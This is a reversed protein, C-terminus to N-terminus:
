NELFFHRRLIELVREQNTQYNFYGQPLPQMVTPSLRFNRGFVTLRKVEMEFHTKFDFSQEAMIALDPEYAEELLDKRGKELASLAREPGTDPRRYTDWIKPDIFEYAAGYGAAAFRDAIEDLIEQPPLPKLAGDADYDDASENPREHRLKYLPPIVPKIHLQAPPDIKEVPVSKKREITIREDLKRSIKIEEKVSRYSLVPRVYRLM